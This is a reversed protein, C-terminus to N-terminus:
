ESKMSTPQGDARKAAILHMQFRRKPHDILRGEFAVIGACLDFPSDPPTITMRCQLTQQGDMSITLPLQWAKRGIALAPLERTEPMPEGIEFEITPKGFLWIGFQKSRPLIQKMLPLAVPSANAVAGFSYLAAQAQLFARSPASSEGQPPETMEAWECYAALGERLHAEPLLAYHSELRQGQEDHLGLWVAVSGSTITETREHSGDAEAPYSWDKVVLEGPKEGPDRIDFVKGPNEAPGAPNIRVTQIGALSKSKLIFHVLRVMPEGRGEIRVSYVAESGVEWTERPQPPDIGKFDKELSKETEALWQTGGLDADSLPKLPTPPEPRACAAAGIGLVWALSLISFSRIM